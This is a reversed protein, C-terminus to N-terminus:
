FASRTLYMWNCNGEREKYVKNYDTFLRTPPKIILMIAMPGLTRRNLGPWLPPNKYAISNRLVSEKPPSTFGDAGYRLIKYGTSFWRSAYVFISRLVFKCNGEALEEQKAILHSPLVALYSQHVFWSNERIQTMGGHNEM